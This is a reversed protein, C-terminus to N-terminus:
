IFLGLDGVEGTGLFEEDDEDEDLFLNINALEAIGEGESTAFRAEEREKKELATLKRTERAEAKRRAKDLDPGELADKIESIGGTFIAKQARKFKKKFKSTSFGM